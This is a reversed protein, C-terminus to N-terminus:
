KLDEKRLKVGKCMLSLPMKEFFKLTQCHNTVFTLM